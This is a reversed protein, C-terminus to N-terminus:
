ANKRKKKDDDKAKKAGSKEGGKAATKADSKGSALADEGKSRKKDADSKGSGKDSKAAQEDTVLPEEDAIARAADLSPALVEDGQDTMGPLDGLNAAAMAPEAPEDITEQVPRLTTGMSDKLAIIERAEIWHRDARGEPRGEGEWLKHAEARIRDEDGNQTKAMARIGKAASGRKAPGRRYRFFAAGTAM